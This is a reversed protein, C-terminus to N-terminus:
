LLKLAVIREVAVDPEVDAEIRYDAKAYLPKREAFRGAFEERSQALPRHAEGAVREWLKDVPVDLWISLGCEGIRERNRDFAFTGGGLAIVRAGGGRIQGTQRKLAEFELDRFRAEGEDAFIEAITKGAADEIVADLDVFDWGFRESLLRGIRSKGCGMYGVLYVGPTAKLKQHM